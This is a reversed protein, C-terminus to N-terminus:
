WKCVYYEIIDSARQVGSNLTVYIFMKWCILNHLLLLKRVSIQCAQRRHRQRSSSRPSPGPGRPPSRPPGGPPSSRLSGTTTAPTSSPCSRSRTTPSRTRWWPTTGRPAPGARSSSRRGSRRVAPSRPPCRRVDAVFRKLAM